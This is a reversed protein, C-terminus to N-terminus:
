RAQFETTNKLRVLGLVNITQGFNALDSDSRGQMSSPTRAHSLPIATSYSALNDTSSRKLAATTRGPFGFATQAILALLLLKSPM